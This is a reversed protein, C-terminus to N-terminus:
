LGFGLVSSMPPVPPDASNDIPADVRAKKSDEAAADTPSGQRKRTEEVEVVVDTEFQDSEDGADM